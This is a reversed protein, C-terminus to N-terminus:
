TVCFFLKLYDLSFYLDSITASTSGWSASVDFSDGLCFPLLKGNCELSLSLIIDGENVYLTWLSINNTMILLNLSSQFPFTKRFYKDYPSIICFSKVQCNDCFVNLFQCKKKSIFVNKFISM